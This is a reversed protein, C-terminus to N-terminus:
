PVAGDRESLLQASDGDLLIANGPMAQASVVRAREQATSEGHSVPQQMCPNPNIFIADGHQWLNRRFAAKGGVERPQLTEVGRDTMTCGPFRPICQPGHCTIVFVTAVLNLDGETYVAEISDM